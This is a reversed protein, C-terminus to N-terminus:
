LLEMFLQSLKATQFIHIQEYVSMEEFFVISYGQDVLWAHFAANPEVRRLDSGNHSSKREIFVKQRRVVFDHSLKAPKFYNALEIAQRAGAFKSNPLYQDATICQSLPLATNRLSFLKVQIGLLELYEYMFRAAANVIVLKSEPYLKSAIAIFPLQYVLFHTIIVLAKILLLYPMIKMHRGHIIDQNFYFMRKGTTAAKKGLTHHVLTSRIHAYGTTVVAILFEM